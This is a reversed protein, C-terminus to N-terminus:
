GIGGNTHMGLLYLEFLKSVEEWNRLPFSKTEPHMEVNATFGMKRITPYSSAAYKKWDVNKSKYDPLIGLSLRNLYTQYDYRMYDGWEDSNQYTPESVACDIEDYGHHIAFKDEDLFQWCVVVNNMWRYFFKYVWNFLPLKQNKRDISDRMDVLVKKRFIKELIWASIILSEPPSTFVYTDYKRIPIHFIALFGWLVAPLRNGFRKVEHLSFPLSLDWFGKRPKWSTLVDFDLYRGIHLWRMTGSTNWPFWYNTILLTNM